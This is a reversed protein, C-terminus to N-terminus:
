REVLPLYAQITANGGSVANFSSLENQHLFRVSGDGYAFNGGQSGIEKPDPTSPPVSGVLGRVGHPSTTQKGGAIGNATSREIVDSALVFRSSASVKTPAVIRHGPAAEGDNLQYGYKEEQRGALLYYGSRIRRMGAFNTNEWKIWSDDGRSPCILIELDVGTDRKYRETLHDTVWAFHDNATLYTIGTYNKRDADTPRLDRHSLRYYGKNQDALLITGLALQRLNSACKTRNSMERARTLAPMLIGMLLAIIGIVVLLEVLTFGATRGVGGRGSLEMQKV